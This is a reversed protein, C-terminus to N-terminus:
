QNRNRNRNKRKKQTTNSNEHVIKEWASRFKLTHIIPSPVYAQYFHASAGSDVALDYGHTHCYPYKTKNNQNM